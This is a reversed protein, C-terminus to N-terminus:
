GAGRPENVADDVDDDAASGAALRLARRARACADHVGNLVGRVREWALEPNIELVVVRDHLEAAGIIAASGALAHASRRLGERDFAALAADLDREGARSREEFLRVAEVLFAPTGETCLSWLDNWVSQDLVMALASPLSKSPTM